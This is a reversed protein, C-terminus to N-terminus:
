RSEAGLAGEDWPSATVTAHEAPDFVAGTLPGRLGAM